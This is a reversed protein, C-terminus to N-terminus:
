AAAPAAMSTLKSVIEDLIPKVSAADVGLKSVVQLILPELSARATDILRALMSRGGPSMEAQVRKLDDIKGSLQELQPLAAEASAATTFGNLTKTLSAFIDSAEQSVQAVNLASLKSTIGRLAQQVEESTTPAALIRAAQQQFSGFQEGILTGLAAQGGAPLKDFVARIGDIQSNLATLQPLAAQATAADRVSALTENASAFIKSVSENVSTLSLTSPVEPLTPRLATVSETTSKAREAVPARPRSFIYWLGAAVLLLAALPLLWAFLSTGAGQVGGATRSAAAGAKRSVERLAADASPLGPISGLSFGDPVADQIRSTEDALLGQLARATGGSSRWAGAVKGLSLPAVLSLM